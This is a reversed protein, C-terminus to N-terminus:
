GTTNKIALDVKEVLHVFVNKIIEVLANLNDYDNLKDEIIQLDEKTKIFKEM